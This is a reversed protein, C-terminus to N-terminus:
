YIIIKNNGRHEENGITYTPETVAYKRITLNDITITPINFSNHASISFYLSTSSTFGSSPTTKQVGDVFYKTTALTTGWMIKLTHMTSTRAFFTGAANTSNDTMVTYRNNDGADYWYIQNAGSFDQLGSSSFFGSVHYFGPVTIDYQAIVPRAITTTSTLYNKGGANAAIITSGGSNSVGVSNFGILSTGDNFRIFTNYGNSASSLSSNGYYMYIINNGTPSVGFLPLDVLIWIVASTSDVKSELWYPINTGDPYAFRLDDFDAQMNVNYPVTISVQFASLAGGSNNNITIKKRRTFQETNLFYVM